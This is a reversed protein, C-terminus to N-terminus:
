FRGYKNEIYKWADEIDDYFTRPTEQFYSWKSHIKDEEDKPEIFEVPRLTKGVKSKARCVLLNWTSYISDLPDFVVCYGKLNVGTKLQYLDGYRISDDDISCKDKRSFHHEILFKDVAILKKLNKANEEPDKQYTKADKTIIDKVVDGSANIIFRFKYNLEEPTLIDGYTKIPDFIGEKIYSVLHKM